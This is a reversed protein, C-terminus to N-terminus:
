LECMMVDRCRIDKCIEIESTKTINVIGRCYKSTKSLTNMYGEVFLDRAKKNAFGHLTFKIEFEDGCDETTLIHTITNCNKEKMMNLIDKITENYEKREWHWFAFGGGSVRLCYYIKKIESM